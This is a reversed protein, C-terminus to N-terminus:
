KTKISNAGPAGRPHTQKETVLPSRHPTSGDRQKETCNAHGNHAHINEGLLLRSQVTVWDHEVRLAFQKGPHYNERFSHLSASGHGEDELVAKIAPCPTV